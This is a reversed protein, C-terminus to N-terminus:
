RREYGVVFGVGSSEPSEAGLEVPSGLSGRASSSKLSNGGAVSFVTIVLNRAGFHKLSFLLPSSTQQQTRTVHRPSVDVFGSAGL